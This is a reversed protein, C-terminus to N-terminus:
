FLAEFCVVGFNRVIGVTGGAPVFLGVETEIAALCDTGTIVDGFVGFCFGASFPPGINLVSRKVRM